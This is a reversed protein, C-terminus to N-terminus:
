QTGGDTPTEPWIKWDPINWMRFCENVYFECQSELVVGWEYHPKRVEHKPKAEVEILSTALFFVAAVVLLTTKM